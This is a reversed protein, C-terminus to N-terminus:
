ENADSKEVSYENKHIHLQNYVQQPTLGMDEAIMKPSWGAKRLAFIKGTDIQRRKPKEKEETGTVPTAESDSEKKEGVSEMAAEPKKRIFALIASVCGNCFHSDRFPNEDLRDKTKKAFLGIDIFGYRNERIEGGCRDCCYKIM